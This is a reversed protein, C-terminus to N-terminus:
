PSSSQEFYKKWTSASRGFDKGTLTKLALYATAAVEADKDELLPVLAPALSQEDRLAVAWAAARRLEPNVHKLYAQLSEPSLRTMRRVLARRFETQENAQGSRPIAEALALTYVGGSAQTAHQLMARKEAESGTILRETIEALTTVQTPDPDRGPKSPDNDTPKETGPKAGPLPKDDGTRLVAEGRFHATLDTALNSRTLFLIGFATCPVPGCRDGDNWSGNAAQTRLFYGAGWAHWDSKGLTKWDYVMAVREIAWLTYPISGAFGHQQTIKDLPNVLITALFMNGRVIVLDRAPEPPPPAKGPANGGKGTTSLYTERLAGYGTSVCMLGAATMSYTSPQNSSTLLYAWGGDQNQHRRIADATKWLVPETPVGYRRGLWLAMVAFQTNSMDGQPAPVPPGGYMQGSNRLQQLDSILQTVDKPEVVPCNYTWLGNNLQGKVLRCTLSSILEADDPDGYRHLAWITTSINYSRTANFNNSARFSSRLYQIAREVEQERVSLGGEMLALVALATCGLTDADESAGGGAMRNWSGNAMQTQRLYQVAREVAREIESKVTGGAGGPKLQGRLGPVLLVSLVVLTVGVGLARKM